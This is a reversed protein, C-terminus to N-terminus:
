NNNTYIRGPIFMFECFNAFTLMIRCYWNFCFKIQSFLDPFAKQHRYNDSHFSVYHDMLTLSITMSNNVMKGVFIVFMERAFKDFYIKILLSPRNALININYHCATYKICISFVIFTTFLSLFNIHCVGRWCKQKVVLTAIARYM